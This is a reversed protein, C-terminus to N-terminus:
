KEQLNGTLIVSINLTTITTFIIDYTEFYRLLMEMAVTIVVYNM